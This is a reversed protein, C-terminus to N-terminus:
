LGGGSEIDRVSSENATKLHYDSASKPHDSLVLRDGPRRRAMCTAAPMLLWAGLHLREMLPGGAFSHATQEGRVPGIFLLRTNRRIRM